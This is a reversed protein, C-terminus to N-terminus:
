DFRLDIHKHSIFILLIVVKNPKMTKIIETWLKGVNYTFCSFVIQYSMFYFQLSDASLFSSPTLQPNLDILLIIRNACFHRYNTDPQIAPFCIWCSGCKTMNVM